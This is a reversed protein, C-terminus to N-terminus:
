NGYQHHTQNWKELCICRGDIEMYDGIM